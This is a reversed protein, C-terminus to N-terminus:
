LREVQENRYYELVDFDALTPVLLFILVLRNLYIRDPPLPPCLAYSIVGERTAESKAQQGHRMRTLKREERQM